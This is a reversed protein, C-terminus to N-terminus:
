SGVVWAFTRRRVCDRITTISVKYQTALCKFPDGEKAKRRIERVDWESLKSSGRLINESPKGERWYERGARGWRNRGKAVTEQNNDAATGERLHDPNCCAPNDCSHLIMRDSRPWRAHTLMFAVRHAQSQTRQNVRFRGYGKEEQAGTWLWCEGETTTQKVKAWFRATFSADAVLAAADPLELGGATYAPLSTLADPTTTM